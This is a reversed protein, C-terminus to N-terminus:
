YHKFIVKKFITISSYVELFLVFRSQIKNSEM